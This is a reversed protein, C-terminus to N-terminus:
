TLNRGIGEEFFKNPMMPKAAIGWLEHCENSAASWNAAVLKARALIAKKSAEDRKYEARTALRDDRFTFDMSCGGCISAMLATRIPHAADAEGRILVSSELHAAWNFWMIAGDMRHFKAFPKKPDGVPVKADREPDLPLLDGGFSIHADLLALIDVAGGNFLFHQKVLDMLLQDLLLVADRVAVPELAALLADKKAQLESPSAQAFERWPALIKPFVITSVPTMYKGQTEPRYLKWYETYSDLDRFFDAYASGRHKPAGEAQWAAFLDLQSQPWKGDPPMDGAVLRTAIRAASGRVQEWDWLDFTPFSNGLMCDRDDARFLNKIDEEFGVVGNMRAM